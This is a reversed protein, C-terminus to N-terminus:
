QGVRAVMRGDETIELKISGQLDTRLVQVGNQRLRELVGPNPHRYRNRRGASVLAIAPTTQAILEAGTSTRSGHHGVKLLDIDLERGHRRVLEDEVVTSVDGLFLAAFRGYRLRFVASYDNAAESADLLITDPHLFDLMVDDFILRTGGRVTQWASARRAASSLVSDYTAKAVPIGPDYVTKVRLMEILSRAGGFHDLDPHTIIFADITRVGRRLLYPVMRKAGADFSPSAPGADIVIWKGQPTRLAIGDGQGVDIM